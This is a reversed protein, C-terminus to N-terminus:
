FRVGIGFSVTRPAGMEGIFGSPAPYPFAFPIYETDFANRILLEAVLPGRTVALRINVLSYAEQEMTNLDDYQYAGYFVADPKQAKVVDAAIRNTQPDIRYVHGLDTKVWLAGAEAVM